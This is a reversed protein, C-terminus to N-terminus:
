KGTSKAPTLKPGATLFELGGVISLDRGKLEEMLKPEIAFAISVQRGDAHAVLYYIWQMPLFAPDQKAPDMKDGDKKEGEKKETEKRITRDPISGVAVVRHVYLGDRLKLKEAEVFEQFDKGLTRQIDAQFENEPVHNGPEANPLKKLHCQAIPRGGQMLKLIVVEPTQYRLHWGREHFFRMKWDPIEFLLLMSADNPELPLNALNSDTLRQPNQTLTRTITIQAAVDLGPSVTGISRKETQTLEIRRISRQDLDYHLRGILKVHAPVGLTIGTIEGDVAIVANNKEASELTCKLRSKEAAEVNALMPFVWDPPSWTEGVEVKSDPLLAIVALSDGPSKLLQLEDATLPGSPSFLEVGDSQGQAVILRQSGRLVLNSIQEAGPKASVAQEHVKAAAREYLRVSRLTQSERGTGPLRREDYTFQADVQLKLAKDAGAEPYVKGTVTLNSTVNFIRGDDPAETLEYREAAHAIGPVLCLIGIAIAFRCEGPSGIREM